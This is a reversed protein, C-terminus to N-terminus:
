ASAEATTLIIGLTIPHRHELPTYKSHMDPLQSIHVLLYLEIINPIPFYIQHNPRNDVAKYKVDTHM